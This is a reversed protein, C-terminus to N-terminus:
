SAVPYILSFDFDLFFDLLGFELLPLFLDFSSLLLVLLVPNVEQLELLLVFFLFLLDCRQFGLV